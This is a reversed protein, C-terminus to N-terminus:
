GGATAAASAGAAAAASRRRSAAAAAAGEAPPRAPPPAAGRRSGPAARGARAPRLARALAAIQERSPPNSKLPKTFDFGWRLTDRRSSDANVPRLDVRTLQGDADRQFRDPFAAELAPTAAPFGIQPRDITQHVFDARLRLDLKESPQWNGGLKLM